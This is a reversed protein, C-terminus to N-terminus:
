INSLILKKKLNTVLWYGLQSNEQNRNITAQYAEFLRLTFFFGLFISIKKQLFNYRSVSNETPTFTNKYYMIIIDPDWLKEWLSHQFCHTESIVQKMNSINMLLRAELKGPPLFMNRKGMNKGPILVNEADGLTIRPM